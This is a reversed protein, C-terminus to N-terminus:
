ISTSKTPVFRLTASRLKELRAATREFLMTVVGAKNNLDTVDSYGFEKQVSIFPYIVMKKGSLQSLIGDATVKKDFPENLIPQFFHRYIIIFQTSFFPHIWFRDPCVQLGYDFGGIGGSLIDTGENYAEIINKFLVDRRYDRTFEHDDECILVLDDDKEQAHKIIKRITLWLGLSGTRNKVAEVYRVDFEPKGKFQDEIHKKRDTRERLNIVYTPLCLNAAEKSLDIDSIKDEDQKNSYFQYVLKLNNFCEGSRRFLSTVVGAEDNDPTIDSYGFEKQISIFPYIVFASSSLESLKIDAKDADSFPTNLIKEFVSRFLVVFQLGTFRALWFLNEGANVAESFWSVGGSIIEANKKKASKICAFLLEASYNETFKHDDECLIIYDEENSVATKIIGRINSWLDLAGITTPQTTVINLPFEKRGAFEELLHRRRDFRHILNIAFVAISNNM